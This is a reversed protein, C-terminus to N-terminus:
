AASSEGVPALGTSPLGHGTRPVVSAGRLAIVGTLKVRKDPLATL